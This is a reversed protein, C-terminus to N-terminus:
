LLTRCDPLGRYNFRVQLLLYVTPNRVHLYVRLLCKLDGQLRLNDVVYKDFLKTYEEACNHFSRGSSILAAAPKKFIKPYEM